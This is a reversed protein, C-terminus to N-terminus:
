EPLDLSQTLDCLADFAARREDTAAPYDLGVMTLKAAALLAALAETDSLDGRLWNRRLGILHYTARAAHDAAELRLRDYKDDDPM